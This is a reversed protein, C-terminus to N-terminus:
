PTRNAEDTGGRQIICGASIGPTDESAIEAIVEDLQRNRGRAAASAFVEPSQEGELKALLRIMPQRAHHSTFPHAVVFALLEVARACEGRMVRVQALGALAEM